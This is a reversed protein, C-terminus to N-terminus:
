RALYGGQGDPTDAPGLAGRGVQPILQDLSAENRRLAGPTYALPSGQASLHHCAPPRAPLAGPHPVHQPSPSAGPGTVCVSRGYGHWPSAAGLSQGVSRGNGDTCMVTSTLPPPAECGDVEVGGEWPGAGAGGGGGTVGGVATATDLFMPSVEAVEAAATPSGGRLEGPMAHHMHRHTCTHPSGHGAAPVMDLLQSTVAGEEVHEEVDEWGCGAAPVAAAAVLGRDTAPGVPEPVTVHGLEPVMVPGPEPVTAPGGCHQQLSALRNTSQARPLSAPRASPQPPQASCSSGQPQPSPTARVALGHGPQPPTSYPLQAAALAPTARGGPPTLTLLPPPPGAVAQTLTLECTLLPPPPPILTLRPPPPHGPPDPLPTANSHGPILSPAPATTSLPCSGTATANPM